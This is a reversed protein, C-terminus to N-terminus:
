KPRLRPQRTRHARREALQLEGPRQLVRAPEVRPRHPHQPTKRQDVHHIHVAVIAVRVPHLAVEDRAVEHQDPRLQRMSVARLLAFPPVLNVKYEVPRFKLEPPLSPQQRGLPRHQVQLWHVIPSAPKLFDHACLRTVARPSRQARHATKQMQQAVNQRRIRVRPAVTLSPQLLRQLQEARGRGVTPRRGLM